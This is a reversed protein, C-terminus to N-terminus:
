PKWSLWEVNILSRERLGELYKEYKKHFRDAQRRLAMYHKAGVRMPVRGEIFDAVSEPVELGIM